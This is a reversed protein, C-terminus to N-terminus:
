LMALLIMSLVNLKSLTQIERRKICAIEKMDDQPHKLGM